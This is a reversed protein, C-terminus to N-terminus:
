RSQVKNLNQHVTWRGWQSALIPHKPVEDHGAPVSAPVEEGTEVIYRNLTSLAEGGPEGVIEDPTPPAERAENVAEQPSEDLVDTRAAEGAVEPSNSIADTQAFERVERKEPNDFFQHEASPADSGGPSDALKYQAALRERAAKKDLKKALEKELKAKDVGGKDNIIRMALSKMEATPNTLADLLKKKLDAAKKGRAKWEKHEKLEREYKRTNLIYRAVDKQAKDFMGSMAGNLLARLDDDSPNEREFKAMEKKDLNKPEEPKKPPESKRLEEQRISSETSAGFLLSGAVAGVLAGVPSLVGGSALSSFGAGVLAGAFAGAVAESAAAM